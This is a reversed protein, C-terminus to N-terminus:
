KLSCIYLGTVYLCKTLDNYKTKFNGFLNYKEDYYLLSIKHNPSLLYFNIIEKAYDSYTNLNVYKRDLKDIVLLIELTGIIEKKNKVKENFFNFRDWSHKLLVGNYKKTNEHSFENFHSMYESQYKAAIYCTNDKKVPPNGILNRQRMAEDFVLSDLLRYNINKLDLFDNKTQSFVNITILLLLIINKM